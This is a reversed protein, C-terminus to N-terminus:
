EVPPEGIGHSAFGVPGSGMRMAIRSAVLDAHEDAFARAAAVFGNLQQDTLALSLALYGREAIYYGRALLDHFLLRRWRPDVGAIDSWREVPGPAPHITMMSGAGTVCFGVPALAESLQDRLRDGRENLRKLTDADLLETVASGVAMTFANNNFTGGHTLGGQAPDFAAMVHRSGGFAGFSLGGGFYKGLVTLDAHVGYVQQAGGVALRSTMVEDM